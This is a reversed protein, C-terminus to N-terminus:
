TKVVLPLTGPWYHPSTMRTSAELYGKFLSPTFNMSDLRYREIYGRLEGYRHARARSHRLKRRWTGDSCHGRQPTSPSHLWRVSASARGHPGAASLAACRIRLILLRDIHCSSAKRCGLRAPHIFAIPSVIPRSTEGLNPTTSSVSQRIVDGVSIVKAGCEKLFTQEASHSLVFVPKADSIMWAIRNRPYSLDLPMYGAGVKMIALQCM